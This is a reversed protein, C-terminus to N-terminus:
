AMTSIHIYTNIPLISKTQVQLKSRYITNACKMKNIVEQPNGAHFIYMKCKLNLLQSILSVVNSRISIQQFVRRIDFIIITIFFM